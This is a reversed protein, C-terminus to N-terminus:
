RLAVATTRTRLSTILTVRKGVSSNFESVVLGDSDCEGALSAENFDQDKGAAVGPDGVAHRDLLSQLEENPVASAVEPRLILKSESININM